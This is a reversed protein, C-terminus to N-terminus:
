SDVTGRGNRQRAHSCATALTPPALITASAEWQLFCEGCVLKSYVDRPADRPLPVVHYCFCCILPQQFQPHLQRMTQERYSPLTLSPPAGSAMVEEGGKGGGKGGSSSSVGAPAGSAMVEEGGKGGESSSLGPPAGSAKNGGRDGKGGGKGGSSSASGGATLMDEFQASCSSAFYRDKRDYWKMEFVVQQGRELYGGRVKSQHVFVDKSGGREASIFGFGKEAFFKKVIGTQM